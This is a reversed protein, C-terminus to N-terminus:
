SAFVREGTGDSAPQASSEGRLVGEARRMMKLCTQKDASAYAAGMCKVYQEEPDFATQQQDSYRDSGWPKGYSCNGMQETRQVPM